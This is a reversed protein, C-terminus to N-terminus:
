VRRRLKASGAPHGLVAVTGSAIIQTGVISRILTTKGCGSPGLLGTITGRAIEVSFDHLAPRKGRIVRLHNISVAPSSDQTVLEDHSSTMMHHIITGSNASTLHAPLIPGTLAVFSSASSTSGTAAARRSSPAVRAPRPTRASM